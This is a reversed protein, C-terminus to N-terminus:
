LSRISSINMGLLKWHKKYAYIILSNLVPTGVLQAPQFPVGLTGGTAGITVLETLHHKTTGRMLPGYNTTHENKHNNPENHFM